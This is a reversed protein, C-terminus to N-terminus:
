PVIVMSQVCEYIISFGKLVVNEIRLVLKNLSVKEEYLMNNKDFSFIKLSKLCM